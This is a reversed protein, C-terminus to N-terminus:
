LDRKNTVNSKSLLIEGQKRCECYVKSVIVQSITSIFNISIFLRKPNRSRGNNIAPPPLPRVIKSADRYLNSSKGM